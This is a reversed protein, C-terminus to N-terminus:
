TFELIENKFAEEIKNKTIAYYAYIAVVGLVILIRKEFTTSSNHIVLDFIFWFVAFTIAMIVFSPTQIQTTIITEDNQSKFSAILATKYQLPLGLPIFPKRLYFTYKVPQKSLQHGALIESSGSNILENIRYQFSELSTKRIEKNIKAM